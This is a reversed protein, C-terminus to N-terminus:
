HEKAELLYVILCKYQYKYNQIYVYIWCSIQLKQGCFNAVISSDILVIIIHVRSLLFSVTLVLKTSKTTLYVFSTKLTNIHAV